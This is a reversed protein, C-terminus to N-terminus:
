KRVVEKNTIEQGKASTIEISPTIRKEQVIELIKEVTIEAGHNNLQPVSAKIEPTLDIFKAMNKPELLAQNVFSTIYDSKIPYEPFIQAIGNKYLNNARHVQEIDARPVVLQAQQASFLEFTTNYGGRTIAVAANTLEQRFKESEIPQFIRIMGHGNEAALRQLYNFATIEKEQDSPDNIVHKEANESIYIDWIKNGFSQSFNRSLIACEFFPLDKKYYGGGGFIVVHRDEDAIEPNKNPMSTIYNGMYEIPININKWEEQSDVLKAFRDDGRVLIRDYNDKLLDIVVEPNANHIIDRCLAVMEIKQNNILSSEKVAEIDFKRFLQQFPFFETLVLDPKFDNISNLVINKRSSIYDPSEYYPNGEPTTYEWKGSGLIKYDVLPLHVVRSNGFDFTQAAGAYNLTGSLIMVESGRAELEKALQSIINFHGYGEHSEVFIAVRPKNETIDIIFGGNERACLM